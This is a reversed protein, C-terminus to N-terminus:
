DMSNSYEFVVPYEPVVVAKLEEMRAEIVAMRALRADMASNDVTKGRRLDLLENKTAAEGKRLENGLASLENTLETRQKWISQVLSGLELSTMAFAAASVEIHFNDPDNVYGDDPDDGCVDVVVRDKVVKVSLRSYDVTALCVEGEYEDSRDWNDEDADDLAKRFTEVIDSVDDLFENFEKRESEQKAVFAALEAEQNKRFDIISKIQEINM